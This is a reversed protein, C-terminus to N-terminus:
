LTNQIAYEECGWVPVSEASVTPFYSEPISFSRDFIAPPPNIQGYSKGPWQPIRWNNATAIQVNAGSTDLLSELDIGPIWIYPYQNGSASGGIPQAKVDSFQGGPGYRNDLVPFSRVPPLGEFMRQRNAFYKKILRMSRGCPGRWQDGMGWTNYVMDNWPSMVILDRLVVNIPNGGYANVLAIARKFDENDSYQQGDEPIGVGTVVGYARYAADQLALRSIKALNDGQQIQYFMGLRPGQGNARDYSNWDFLPAEEPEQTPAALDLPPGIPPTPDPPETAITGDFAFGKTKPKPKPANPDTFTIGTDKDEPEKEEGQDADNNNGKLLFYLAVAGIGLTLPDM